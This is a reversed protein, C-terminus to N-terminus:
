SVVCRQRNSTQLISRWLTDSVPPRCWSILRLSRITSTGLLISTRMKLSIVSSTNKLQCSRRHRDLRYMRREWFLKQQALVENQEESM